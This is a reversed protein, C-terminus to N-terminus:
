GEPTAAPAARRRREADNILGMREVPIPQFGTDRVRSGQLIRFDGHAADVFVPSGGVLNDSFGASQESMGDLFEVWKGGICVNRVVRNGKAQAPEDSLLTVLSPYRTSYPPRTHNVVKLRDFLTNETGDFYYRAWSLGRADVHMAPSCDVFVNNEVVNDRGGGIMVARGARVFLNGFVTVGSMWDDLYVAMVETFGSQGPMAGARLDHFRNYRVVNGRQAWDRGMYFAGADGTERCVDHVDNFEIECDNGNVFIAQHPANWIANNAARLGVGDMSIGPRYTRNWLGFDHIDNNSAYNRSPVLLKRDGGALMIGGAGLNYLDCASVGNREGGDRQWLVDSYRYPEDGGLGNGIWAGWGGLNRLTCGVVQNRAGGIIEVGTGLSCELTVGRVTVDSAGRISILPAETTAARVMGERLEVPPWFYLAGSRRDICWEGPQDLEELLNVVQWRRGATYGYVGYPPLTVIERSAPLVGGVKVYSEAWDWTWYGNVWADATDRWRRPRDGEYTFRDGKQGRSAGAIKAWGDNPWCALRMPRDCCFLDLGAVRAPLSATSAGAPPVPSIGQGRLDTWFVHGAAAVALRSFAPGSEVRRWGRVAAGGAIRVDEGTAAAYTVPADPRGGDEPGLAFSGSRVYTGGHIWVTVPGSIHGGRRLSRIEDRARELTAFPGDSGSISSRRGSLRDNGSPAVHFEVARSASPALVALVSVLVIPSYRM